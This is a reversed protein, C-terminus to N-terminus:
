IDMLEMEDLSLGIKDANVAEILLIQSGDFASVKAGSETERGVNAEIEILRESGADMDFYNDSYFVRIDPLFLRVARVFRRAKLWICLKNGGREARVVSLGGDGTEMRDNEDLDLFFSRNEARINEGTFEMKLYQRAYFEGRKEEAMGDWIEDMSRFTLCVSSDPPVIVSQAEEKYIQGDFDLRQWLFTGKKEELTENVAYFCIGDEREIGAIVFDEYARRTVFYSMKFNGYMDVACMHSPFVGGVPCDALPDNFKWYLTGNCTGKLSRFYEIWYKLAQAHFMQTYIIAKDFDNSDLYKQCSPLFKVMEEPYRLKERRFNFRYFTDKDPMGVFGFESVFRPRYGLIRKYYERGYDRNAPIGKDASMIYLHQDGQHQSSPDDGGRKEPSPSCPSTPIYYRKPDLKECVERIVENGIKDREFEYLRGAWGYAQGNENDGSWIALCTYNRYRLVVEQAERRVNELFTENQPYIGCALMFDSWLLIGLKDCLEFMRVSEYIGGGWIRLMSLNGRVADELYNEYDQESIETYVAKMPVWNAGRIFLKRGNVAFQFSEGDAQRERLVEATRIGFYHSRSELLEGERSLSLTIRYLPQEGYPRPWWLRPHEVMLTLEAAEDPSFIQRFFERGEPETLSVEVQYREKEPYACASWDIPVALFLLARVAEKETQWHIEKTYLYWDSLSAESKSVLTIGKWIGTTVTRGCFDWSYNMQAKRALIRESTTISFIGKQEMKEVARIPSRFHIVLVNRKGPLLEDKVSFVYRRHMNEGGGIWVGNLYLDCFTDLGDCILETKNGGFDPPVMFARYYIWDCEEVWREEEPEKNYTHGRLLGARRLTVHIDEPIQASLWGEPVFSKELVKRIGTGFPFYTVKWEGNLEIGM